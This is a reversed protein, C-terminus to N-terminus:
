EEAEVAGSKRTRIKQGAAMGSLGIVRVSRDDARLLSALLMSDEVGMAGGLSVGTGRDKREEVRLLPFVVEDVGVTALPEVEVGAVAGGIVREKPQFRLTVADTCFSSCSLVGVVLAVFFLLVVFELELIPGDKGSLVVVVGAAEAGRM